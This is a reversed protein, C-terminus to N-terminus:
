LDPVPELEDHVTVSYTKPVDILGIRRKDKCFAGLGTKM